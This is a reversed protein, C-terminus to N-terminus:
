DIDWGELLKDLDGGVETSPSPAPDKPASTQAPAEAEQAPASAGWADGGEVKPEAKPSPKANAQKTTAPSEGWGAPAEPEAAEPAPEPTTAPPETRPEPKAGEAEAQANASFGMGPLGAVLKVELEERRPDVTDYEGETLYRPATFLLRPYDATTDFAVRTVVANYPVPPNAASLKALYAGLEKMSDAPVPLQYPEASPDSAPVIAIRKSDACAKGDKGTQPNIKSGWQNMPCEACNSHQKHKADAAPRVGDESYCDPSEADQGPKYAEKFYTKTLHPNVLVMIVDMQSESMVHVEEGGKILRFRSQKLSIRNVSKGLTGQSAQRNLELMEEHSRRALFAPVQATQVIIDRSM